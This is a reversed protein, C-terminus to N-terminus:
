EGYGDRQLKLSEQQEFLPVGFFTPGLNAIPYSSAQGTEQDFLAQRKTTLLSANNDQNTM